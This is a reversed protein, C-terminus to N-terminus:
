RDGSLYSSYVDLASIAGCLYEMTVVQEGIGLQQSIMRAAWQVHQQAEHRSEIRRGDMVRHLQQLAARSQEITVNSFHHKAFVPDAFAVDMQLTGRELIRQWNPTNVYYSQIKLLVDRYMDLAERATFTALSRTYSRDGYRRTLDFHMRALEIRRELEREGPHEKLAKEYHTLAEGWRRESELQQGLQFVERLATEDTVAEAPVRVQSWAQWAPVSSFVLVFLLALSRLVPIRRIM